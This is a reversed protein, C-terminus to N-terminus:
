LHCSGTSAFMLNDCAQHASAVWLLRTTANSKRAKFRELARGISEPDTITSEGSEGLAAKGAEILDALDAESLKRASAPLTSADFQRTFEDVFEVLRYLIAIDHTVGARKKNFTVPARDLMARVHTRAEELVKPLYIPQIAQFWQGAMVKPHLTLLERYSKSARALKRSAQSLKRCVERDSPSSNPGFDRSGGAARKTGCAISALRAQVALFEAENGLIESLHLDASGALMRNRCIEPALTSLESYARGARQLDLIIRRLTATAQQKATARERRFEAWLDARLFNFISAALEQRGYPGLRDVLEILSPNAGAKESRLYPFFKDAWVSFRIGEPADLIPERM